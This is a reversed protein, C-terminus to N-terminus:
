DNGRFLKPDFFYKCEEDNLKLWFDASRMYRPFVPCFYSAMYEMKGHENEGNHIELKRLDKSDIVIENLAEIVDDWDGDDNEYGKIHESLKNKLLALLIEKKEPIILSEIGVIGKYDFLYYAAGYEPHAGGVYEFSRKVAFYDESEFAIWSEFLTTQGNVSISTLLAILLLRSKM